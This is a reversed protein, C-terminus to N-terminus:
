GGSAESSLIEVTLFEPDIYWDGDNETRHFRIPEGVSSIYFIIVHIEKFASKEQSKASHLGKFNRSLCYSEENQVLM